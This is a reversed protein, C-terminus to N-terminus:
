FICCECFFKDMKNMETKKIAKTRTVDISESGSNTKCYDNQNISNSNYDLYTNKSCYNKNNEDKYYYLSNFSKINNLNTSNFPRKNNIVSDKIFNQKNLSIRDRKEVNEM